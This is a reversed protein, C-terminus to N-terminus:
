SSLVRELEAAIAAMGTENPHFSGGTEAMVRHFPQVWPEPSGLAHGTSLSSALILEAGTRTAANRFVQGIARQIILLQGIEKDSFPTASGSADNLVTLYDVLLVRAAPAKGHVEQVVRILGTSAHEVAQETPFPIGNPFMPELLSVMPSEPECRLWAAYLMAGAFQLDNGGATITVVDAEAPLDNVQPPYVVGEVTQQPTDIINATTAGSVTLDVLRADLREALQHAYNRESRMAASEAVPNIGPGAAFSSGLAAILKYSSMFHDHWRKTEAARAGPASEAGTQRMEGCNRFSRTAIV